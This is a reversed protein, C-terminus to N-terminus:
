RTDDLRLRYAEVLEAGEPRFDHEPARVFGMRAYMRMAARMSASTHLGLEAAGARRARRVCEDMLARGVSQGRAEPAVALLRVEPWGLRGTAGGYADASPPYLLVSGVLAGRREAVVREAGDEAELAARVARELGAWASPAMVTAYEAYARLTLDRIAAREDGRADRVTV